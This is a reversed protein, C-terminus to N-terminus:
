ANPEADDEGTFEGVAARVDDTVMWIVAKWRLSRRRKYLCCVHGHSWVERLEGRRFAVEIAPERVVTHWSDPGVTYTVHFPAVELTKRVIKRATRDSIRVLWDDRMRERGKWGVILAFYSLMGFAVATGGWGLVHRPPDDGALITLTLALSGLCGIPALVQIVRFAVRRNVFRITNMRTAAARARELLVHRFSAEAAIVHERTVEVELVVPEGSNSSSINM